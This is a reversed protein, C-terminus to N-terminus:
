DIPNMCPDKKFGGAEFGEHIPFIGALFGPDNSRPWKMAIM